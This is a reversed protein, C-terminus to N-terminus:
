SDKGVRPRSKLIILSFYPLDRGRLTDLDEVCREQPWGANEVYIAQVRRTVRRLRDLLDDLVSNVKILFVTTFQDLLIDLTELGYVAPVVAVRDDLNAIPWGAAAAAAGLSTVGPVIETRARPLVLRVQEYVHMFTSYFLPDGEAIWACSKGQELEAAIDGAIRRYTDQDGARNRGMCLAVGRFKSEPLAMPALVRRALSVGSKKGLPHFIWDAETLVRIARLTLLEPDGPGLGVGYFTGPTM